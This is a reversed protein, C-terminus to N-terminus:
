HARHQGLAIVTASSRSAGLVFYTAGASSRRRCASVASLGSSWSDQNRNRLLPGLERLVGLSLML